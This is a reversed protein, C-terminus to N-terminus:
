CGNFGSSLNTFIKYISESKIRNSYSKKIFTSKETRLKSAKTRIVGGGMEFNDNQHEKYYNLLKNRANEYPTKYYHKTKGEPISPFKYVKDCNEGHRLFFIKKENETLIFIMKKLIRPPILNIINDAKQEEVFNRNLVLDINESMLEEKHESFFDLLNKRARNYNKIYKRKQDNNEFFSIKLVQNCEKTHQLIFDEKQTKPLLVLMKKLILQPILNIINNPDKEKESDREQWTYNNELMEKKKDSYELDPEKLISELNYNFTGNLITEENEKFIKLLKKCANSYFATYYGKSKEKPPNPLKLNQNCDKGHKLLFAEKEKATLFVLMKKLQEPPIFDNIKNEEITLTKLTEYNFTGNLLEEKNENYFKLLKARIKQYEKKEQSEKQIKYVCNGNEGHFHFFINKEELTLINIIKLLIQNPILNVLSNKNPIRTKRALISYDFTGNLLAEKNKNYYSILKNKARSYMVYYYNSSKNKSVKPFEKTETLTEGHRLFFIKKENETLINVLKILIFHPIIELLDTREKSIPTKLNSYDFTGNLLAEENEIYFNILKEKIKRYALNYYNQHKNKPPKPFKNNENLNKGHKLYFIAKQHPTLLVLLRKLLNNPIRELITENKIIKEYDFTENLISEKNQELFARLKKRSNNYLITSYKKSKGQLVEPFKNSQELNNGHKFIYVEKQVPALICIIKKLSEYFIALKVLSEQYKKKQEEIQKNSFGLKSFSNNENLNKGHILLFINKEEEDLLSLLMKLIQNPMKKVLNEKKEEINDIKELAEEPRKDEFYIYHYYLKAMEIIKKTIKNLKEYEEKNLERKKVNILMKKSKIIGNYQCFFRIEEQPLLEILSIIQELNLHEHINKISFVQNEIVEINEKEEQVQTLKKTETNDLLYHKIQNARSPQRLKKLAKAEIQRIRERTLNFVKGVEELTQPEGGDLGFRLILVKQEKEKLDNLVEKIKEKLSSELIIEEPRLAKDDAILDSLTTNSDEGYSIDLSTIEQSIIILDEIYAETKNLAKAIEKPEPERGLEKKLSEISRKMKNIIEVKNTPIRVARAKESLARKIAQRIWWTAYTSFKNGKKYDFKDVAQILGLNGEGILDLFLMGRGLYRKAISVVLRLNSEIFRKKAEFDGQEMRKGLEQEEEYTLLDFKEIEKLYSQTSDEISVNKLLEEDDLLDIEELETDEVVIGNEEMYFTILTELISHTKCIKRYNEESIIDKKTIKQYLKEFQLTNNILQYEKETLSYEIEEIFNTWKKLFTLTHNLNFKQNFDYQNLYLIINEIKINEKMFNLMLNHFNLIFNNKDEKAKNYIKLFEEENITLFGYEEKLKRQKENLAM